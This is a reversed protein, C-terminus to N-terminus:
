FAVVMKGLGMELPMAFAGGLDKATMYSTEHPM